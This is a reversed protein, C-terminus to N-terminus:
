VMGAIIARLERAAEQYRVGGTVGWLDRIIDNQSAQSRLMERVKKIRENGSREVELASPLPDEEGASGVEFGSRGVELASFLGSLAANSVFPLRVLRAPSTAASRLLAVGNGLPGDDISRQPMDLLASASVRDGGLYIATRYAERIASDGGLVKVLASQTAGMVLVHVKRGERLLRGLRDFVKPISEAIVPLEDIALFLPAGVAVGRARRELRRDMEDILEGILNDIDRTKVAPPRELRRVIPRWDEGTEPDIDAHHPNALVVRAGVAQLQPLILRMGNSKGGGTAGVLAVHMLKSVPVTIREGSDALALLISERTPRFDLTGLDTVPPLAGGASAAPAGPPTATGSYEYRPAYNLHAPPQNAAAIAAVEQRLEMLEKQILLIAGNTDRLKEREITLGAPDLRVLPRRRQAYFDLAVVALVLALAAPAINWVLAAADLMPAYQMRFQQERAYADWARQEALDDHVPGGAGALLLVGAIGIIILLKKM